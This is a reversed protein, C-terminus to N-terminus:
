KVLLLYLPRALSLLGLRGLPRASCVILLLRLFAVFNTAANQSEPEEPTRGTKGRTRWM